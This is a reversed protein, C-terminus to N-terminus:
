KVTWRGDTTHILQGYFNRRREPDPGVFTISAGLPLDAAAGDYENGFLSTAEIIVRKPDQALMERVQKKSRPRILKIDDNWIFLGQM